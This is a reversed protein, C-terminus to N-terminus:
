RMQGPLGTGQRNALDREIVQALGLGSGSRAVNESVSDIWMERYFKTDLGNGFMGDKPLTDWMSKFLMKLFESEFERAVAGASSDPRGDTTTPGMNAALLGAFEGSAPQLGQTSPPAPLAPALARASVAQSPDLRVDYKDAPKIRWQLL